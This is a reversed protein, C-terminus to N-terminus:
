MVLLCSKQMEECQVNAQYSISYLLANNQKTSNLRKNTDGGGEEGELSGIEIM